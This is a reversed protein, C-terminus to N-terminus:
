LNIVRTTIVLHAILLLLYYTLFVYRTLISFLTLRETATLQEEREDVKRPDSKLPSCTFYTLFVNYSKTYLEYSNVSNAWFSGNLAFYKHSKQLFSPVRRKRYFNERVLKLHVNKTIKLAFTHLYRTLIELL